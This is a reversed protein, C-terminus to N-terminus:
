LKKTIVTGHRDCTPISNRDIKIERDGTVIGEDIILDACIAVLDGARSNILKFTGFGPSIVKIPNVGDGLLNVMDAFRRRETRSGKLGLRSKLLDRKFTDHGNSTDIELGFRSSSGASVCDYGVDRYLRMLNVVNLGTDTRTSTRSFSSNSQNGLIERQIPNEVHLTGNRNYFINQDKSTMQSGGKLMSMEDITRHIVTDNGTKTFTLNGTEVTVGDREVTVGDRFSRAMPEYVIDFYKLYQILNGMCANVDYLESVKEAWLYPSVNQFLVSSGPIKAYSLLLRKIEHIQSLFQKELKARDKQLEHNDPLDKLILLKQLADLQGLSQSYVAEIGRTDSRRDGKIVFGESFIKGDPINYGIRHLNNRDNPINASLSEFNIGTQNSPGERASRAQEAMQVSALNFELTTKSYHHYSM